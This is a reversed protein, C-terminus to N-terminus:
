EKLDSLWFTRREAPGPFCGCIVRHSSFVAAAIRGNWQALAPAILMSLAVAALVPQGFYAPVLDTGLTQSVLLLAFEGGHALLLAVRASTRGSVGTSRVLLFVVGLKIALLLTLAAFTTGPQALVVRWDIMMGVTLFFLGLLLDRFPRIEEELQHRFDSEGVAMGVIFAGIPLSLHLAEAAVAGGLVLLVTALLFLENSHSRATWALIRGLTPRALLAVLLFVAISMGVALLTGLTSGTGGHLAGVVALLPLAAFDQFLLFGTALVGHHTAVEDQDILQKHVIATSSMALAFGILLSPLVGVGAWIGLPAALLATTGVQVSGLGFVVRRAELLRKFSFELGVVFMLLAVGVEGLVRINETAPLLNLGHPGIALGAGLYGVIPSFRLRSIAAVAAFSALALVFMIGLLHHLMM